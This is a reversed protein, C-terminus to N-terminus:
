NTHLSGSSTPVPAEGLEAMLSLYEKDMRAKDQASQPDGPRNFTGPSTFKCDSAIHGAGGCKTCLTTNTISRPESSQWPRLIRYCGVCSLSQADCPLLPVTPSLTLPTLPPSPCVHSRSLSLSVCSHAPSLSVSTHPRSLSVCVRSRSLSVCVHSRSLSVSTHAPSLSVSTHAPSLSVCVHSSPLSLCLRTLVPFLCLRTLPLSVCLRTL